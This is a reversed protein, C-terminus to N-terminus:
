EEGRIVLSAVTNYEIYSTKKSTTFQFCDEFIADIKGTLAFYNPKLKITVIHGEHKLFFEKHM